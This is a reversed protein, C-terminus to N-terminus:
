KRRNTEAASSTLKRLLRALREQEAQSLVGLLRRESAMADEIAAEARKRGQATLHVRVGRRDHPDPIRRVLGAAELRDLRGTTAGSTVLTETTLESPQVGDSRDLRRLTVLTSFDGLSLQHAQLVKAAVTEVLFALRYSRGAVELSSTDLDPMARSWEDRLRDVHDAM